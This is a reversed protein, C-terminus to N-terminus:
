VHGKGFCILLLLLLMLLLLLLQTRDHVASGLFPQKHLDMSPWLAPKFSSQLVRM